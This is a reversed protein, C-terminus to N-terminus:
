PCIKFYHSIHKILDYVMIRNQLYTQTSYSPIIHYLRASSKKYSHKRLSENHIIDNVWVNMTSQSALQILFPSEISGSIDVHNKRWCWGDMQLITVDVSFVQFRVKVFAHLMQLQARTNSNTLKLLWRKKKKYASVLFSFFLIYIHICGHIYIWGHIYIYIYIYIYIFGHIYIWACFKRANM